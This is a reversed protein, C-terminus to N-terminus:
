GATAPPGPARDRAEPGARTLWVGLLVLATSLIFGAPLRERLFVWAMAATVLPQLNTIMAVTATKLYQLGWFWLVYNVGSTLWALYCLGVWGTTTVARVDFHV